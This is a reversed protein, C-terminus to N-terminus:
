DLKFHKSCFNVLNKPVRTHEGLFGIGLANICLEDHFQILIKHPKDNLTIKQVNGEKLLYNHIHESDILERLKAKIEESNLEFIKNFVAEGLAYDALMKDITTTM